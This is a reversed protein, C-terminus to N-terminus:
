TWCHKAPHWCVRCERPRRWSRGPWCQGMARPERRSLCGPSASCAGRKGQTPGFEENRLNNLRSTGFVYLRMSHTVFAKPEGCLEEDGGGRPAGSRAGGDNGSHAERPNQPWFEPVAVACLGDAVVSWSRPKQSISANLSGSSLGCRAPSTIIPRAPVEVTNQTPTPRARTFHLRLDQATDISPCACSSVGSVTGM